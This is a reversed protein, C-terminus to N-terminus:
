FFRPTLVRDYKKFLEFRVLVEYSGDNFVAKGLETTERDYGFGVMMADSVQLGVMGSLAADWRYGVGLTLKEYLLFSASVDVQLPAGFVLKTLLAPKFKIYENIDFTHGTILYYNIREEAIFAESNNNNVTASEDFHKTELLNPASLGMYFRDTYYYLGIGVNPSFKNDINNEFLADNVDFKSLRQFDVDLLHGGAKLGFSLRGIDSTPITYSFDIDFYTERTPGIEDNVISVGLGVRDTDGLPTNFSITQTRPAGDLGVWQSRHLGNISFVGRSGAYAPNVSITNYMYQTYQADQQAYLSTLVFFAICASVRTVITKKM